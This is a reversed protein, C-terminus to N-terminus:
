FSVRPWVALAIAFLSVVSLVRSWFIAWFEDSASMNKHWNEDHKIAVTKKNFGLWRLITNQNYEVTKEVTQGFVFLRTLWWWASLLVIALLLKLFINILSAAVAGGGIKWVIALVAFKGSDTKLFADAGMGVQKTFNAVALGAADGAEAWERFKAPTMDKVLATLVSGDEPSKRMQEASASLAAAQAKIAEAQESTLGKTDIVVATAREVRGKDAATTTFSALALIAVAILQLVKKM